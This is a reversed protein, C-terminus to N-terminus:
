AALERRLLDAREGIIRLVNDVIPREGFRGAVRAAAEPMRGALEAIRRRVPAPGLGASEAFREVHRRRVYQPRYEGGLKMALKRSLGPYAATCVLDYLPALHTTEAAYLLSFNKGHADHNGIVLNFAFAHFLGIIDGTPTQM